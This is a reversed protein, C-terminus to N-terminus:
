KVAIKENKKRKKEKKKKTKKEKKREKEKNSFDDSVIAKPAHMNVNTDTRIHNEIRVPAAFHLLFKDVFYPHEFLKNLDHVTAPQCRSGALEESWRTGKFYIIGNAPSGANSRERILPGAWRLFEPLATVARGVVMDFSKPTMKEARMTVVKVNPLRLAEVVEAVAKGKKAISDLLTFQVRHSPLKLAKM